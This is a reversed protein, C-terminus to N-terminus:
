AAKKGWEAQYEKEQRTLEKKILPKSKTWITKVLGAKDQANEGASDRYRGIASVIKGSEMRFRGRVDPGRLSIEVSKAAQEVREGGERHFNLEFSEGSESQLSAAQIDQVETIDQPGGIEELMQDLGRDIEFSLASEAAEQSGEPSREGLM